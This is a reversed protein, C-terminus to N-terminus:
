RAYEGSFREWAIEADFQLNKSLNDVIQKPTLNYFPRSYANEPAISLLRQKYNPNSFYGEYISLLEQRVSPESLMLQLETWREMFAGKLEPRISGESRFYGWLHNLEMSHLPSPNSYGFAQFDIRALTGKSDLLMYNRTHGDGLAFFLEDAAWSGRQKLYESKEEGESLLGSLEAPRGSLFVEEPTSIDLKEMICFDKSPSYIAHTNRGFLNLVKSAIEEELGDKIKLVFEKKGLKGDTSFMFVPASGQYRVPIQGNTYEYGMSNLTSKIQEFYPEFSHHLSNSNLYELYNAMDGSSQKVRWKGFASMLGDISQISHSIEPLLIDPFNQQYILFQSKFLAAREQSFSGAYAKSQGEGIYIDFKGPKQSPEISIGMDSEINLAEQSKLPIEFTFKTSPEGSARGRSDIRLDGEMMQALKQSTSMALGTSSGVANTSPKGEFASAAQEYTMGSAFDEVTIELTRFGSGYDNQRLSLKIEQGDPFAGPNKSAYEATYKLSNALMNGVISSFAQADVMAYIEPSLGEVSIKIKPYSASQSAIAKEVLPSLQTSELSLQSVGGFSIQSVDYTPELYSPLTSGMEDIASLNTNKSKQVTEELITKAEASTKSNDRLILELEKIDAKLTSNSIYDLIQSTNKKMIGLLEQTGEQTPERMRSEFENKITNSPADLVQLHSKFKQELLDLRADMVGSNKLRSIDDLILKSSNYANYASSKWDHLHLKLKEQSNSFNEMKAQLPIIKTPQVNQKHAVGGVPQSAKWGQEASNVLKKGDFIFSPSQGEPAGFSFVVRDGKKLTTAGDIVQRVSPEQARYVYISTKQYGLNEMYQEPSFNQSICSIELENGKRQLLFYDNFDSRRYIELAKGEALEIYPTTQDIALRGEFYEPTYTTELNINRGTPKGDLGIEIASPPKKAVGGVPEHSLHYQTNAILLKANAIKSAILASEAPEQVFKADQELAKLQKQLSNLMNQNLQGMKFDDSFDKATQELSRLNSLLTNLEFKIDDASKPALTREFDIPASIRKPPAPVFATGGVPFQINPNQTKPSSPKGESFISGPSVSWRIDFLPTSNEDLGKYTINDLLTEGQPAYFIGNYRGSATNAFGGPLDIGTSCSVFIVSPHSIFYRGLDSGSAIQQATILGAPWAHGFRISGVDGHGGVWLTSIPGYNNYTDVISRAASFPSSAEYIKIDLNQDLYSINNRVLSIAGSYDSLANIALMLPKSSDRKGYNEYQRLLVGADYRGFFRIGQNKCLFDAAKLNLADLQKIADVNSLLNLAWDGWVDKGLSFRERYSQALQFSNDFDYGSREARERFEIMSLKNIRPMFDLFSNLNQINEPSLHGGELLKFFEKLVDANQKIDTKNHLKHLLSWHEPKFYSSKLISSLTLFASAHSLYSEGQKLSFLFDRWLPYSSLNPNQLMEMIPFSLESGYEDILLPHAKEVMVLFNLLNEAPCISIQTKLASIVNEPLPGKGLISEFAYFNVMLSEQPSKSIIERLIEKAEPTYGELSEIRQMAKETIGADALKKAITEDQLLSSNEEIRPKQEGGSKKPIFATGGVPERPAPEKGPRLYNVGGANEWHMGQTKLEVSLLFNADMLCSTNKDQSIRSCIQSIEQENFSKSLIAIHRVIGEDNQPSKIETNKKIADALAAFNKNRFYELNFLETFWPLQAPASFQARPGGYRFDHPSYKEQARSNLVGLSLISLDLLSQLNRPNVGNINIDDALYLADKGISLQIYSHSAGSILPNQSMGALMATGFIIRNFDKTEIGEKIDRAGLMGFAAQGLVPNYLSMGFAMWLNATHGNRNAWVLANLFPNNGAQKYLSEYHAQEAVLSQCNQFFEEFKILEEVIELKPAGELQLKAINNIADNAEVAFDSVFGLIDNSSTTVSIYNAYALASNCYDLSCQAINEPINEEQLEKGERALKNEDWIKEILSNKEQPSFWIETGLFRLSKIGGISAITYDQAFTRATSINSALEIQKLAAEETAFNQSPPLYEPSFQSLSSLLSVKKESTLFTCYKIAEFVDAPRFSLLNGLNQLRPSSSINIRTTEALIKAYNEIKQAIDTLGADKAIKIFPQAYQSIFEPINTSSISSIALLNMKEIISKEDQAPFSSEPSFRSLSLQRSLMTFDQQKNEISTQKAQARAYAMELNVYTHDTRSIPSNRLAPSAEALPEGEFAHDERQSNPAQAFVGM